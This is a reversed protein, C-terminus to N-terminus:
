LAKSGRKDDADDSVRQTFWTVPGLCFKGCLGWYSSYFKGPSSFPFLIFLFNASLSESLFTLPNLKRKRWVSCLFWQIDWSFWFASFCHRSGVDWWEKESSELLCCLLIFEIEREWMVRLRGHLFGILCQCHTAWWHFLRMYGEQKPTPLLRGEEESPQSPLGQFHSCAPFLSVCTVYLAMVLSSLADVLAPAIM